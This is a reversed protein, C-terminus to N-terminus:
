TESQKPPEEDPLLPSGTILRTSLSWTLYHWAWQLLTLVRNRFGILKMIHIFLWILWAVLGSFKFRGLQAVAAARGITAMTGLDTYRFPSVPKNALRAAIAKGVYTGQQMAVPAVGPLLQGDQECHAMDGLVFIEPHGPLTLDSGVFIRGARDLQAGTAEALRAALPSAQVGAAWLVTRAAIHVQEDGCRCTVGDPQIDVVMTGTKVEVGRHRLADLAKSSLEPSYSPLVKPGGEVLIVKADNPRISRFDRKLSHRAMEAVAGALEVGTPGAGVIVFTLWMARRVPDAEQEAAEFALLIRRRIETADEITKLGPALPEWHDNGFYSHRAGAAVVLTDYPLEGDSLIVKRGSVDVDRVEALLMQANTQRRFVVRLTAAINSPSLSATAVQYLLPQFLHFNRRDVLTVRVPASRLAQTARLGGFGGGIVVVRHEGEM